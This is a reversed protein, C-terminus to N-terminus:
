KNISNYVETLYNVVEKKCEIDLTEVYEYINKIIDISDYSKEEGTAQITKETYDIKLNIPKLTHVKNLINNIEDHKLSSDIMLSVFNNKINKKLLDENVDQSNVKLFKPSFNNTHFNFTKNDLDIIYYGREDGLDGFNQQYPSGLYLIQGKDYKRHDKKHFHGSIIFPSKNLLNKSDEGKDCARYTNMYFTNIEFHGFCIDTKPIDSVPTGWPILSVTTGNSTEIVCPKNDVITINNWGDFICISNIESKEKFFSDHNGASVIINFDKFYDFFQKATHITKVSIESRNHFIDGPIIIDKIGEKKYFTSVEKAFALSIDHWIPSDQYLGIHVDSFCGIRSNVTDIM